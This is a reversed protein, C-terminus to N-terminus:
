FSKKLPVLLMNSVPLMNPVLSAPLPYTEQSLDDPAAAAARSPVAIVVCCFHAKFGRAAMAPYGARYENEQGIPGIVVLFESSPEFGTLFTHLSKGSLDKRLRLM